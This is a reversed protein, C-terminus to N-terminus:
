KDTAETTLPKPSDESSTIATPQEDSTQLANAMAAKRIAKPDLDFGMIASYVADAIGVVETADEATMDVLEYEGSDPNLAKVKGGVFKKRILDCQIEVQERQSLKAVELGQLALHDEYTAPMYLAYCESGWEDALGELSLRKVGVLRKKAEAM